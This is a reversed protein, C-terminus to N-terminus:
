VLDLQPLPAAACTPLCTRRQRRFEAFFSVVEREADSVLNHQEVVEIIKKHRGSRIEESTTDSTTSDLTPDGAAGCGVGIAALAIASFVAKM